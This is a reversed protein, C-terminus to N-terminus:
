AQGHGLEVEADGALLVVAPLALVEGLDLPHAPLVDLLINPSRHPRFTPRPCAIYTYTFTTITTSLLISYVHIYLKVFLM